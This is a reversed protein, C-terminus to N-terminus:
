YRTLPLVIQLYVRDGNSDNTVIRDNNGVLGGLKFEDNVKVFVPAGQYLQTSSRTALVVVNDMLDNVSDKLNGMFGRSVSAGHMLYDSVVKRLAKNDKLEFTVGAADVSQRHGGSKYQMRVSALKGNMEALSIGSISMIPLDRYFRNQTTPLDPIGDDEISVVRNNEDVTIMTDRDVKVTNVIVGSSLTFYGVAQGARDLSYQGYVLEKDANDLRRPITPINVLVKGVDGNKLAQVAERSTVMGPIKDLKGVFAPSRLADRQRLASNRESDARATLLSDTFDRLERKANSLKTVISVFDVSEGKSALQIIITKKKELLDVKRELKQRLEGKVSDDGMSLSNRLNNIEGQISSISSEINSKESLLDTKNMSIIRTMDGADYDAMVPTVDATIAGGLAMAGVLANRGANVWGHNQNEGTIKDVGAQTQVQEDVVDKPVESVQAFPNNFTESGM